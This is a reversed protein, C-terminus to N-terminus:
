SWVSILNQCYTLPVSQGFSRFTDAMLFLSVSSLDPVYRYNILMNYNPMHHLSCPSTPTPPSSGPSLPYYVSSSPRRDCGSDHKGLVETTAGGAMRPWHEIKDEQFLVSPNSYGVATKFSESCSNLSVVNTSALFIKRMFSCQSAPQWLNCTVSQM